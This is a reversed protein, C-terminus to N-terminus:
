EDPADLMAGGVYAGRVHLVHVSKGRICFIVRCRGVIMQRIDEDFEDNEPALSFAAPMMALQKLISSRLERVWKRAQRSGWARCGWDYSDQVDVQASDEIIVRYKKM